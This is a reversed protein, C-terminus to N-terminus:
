VMTQRNLTTDATVLLQALAVGFCGFKQREDGGGFSCSGATVMEWEWDGWEGSGV